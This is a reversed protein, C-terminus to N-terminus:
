RIVQVEGGDGVKIIGSPPPNSSENQRLPVIYDVAQKIDDSINYKKRDGEYYNGAMDTYGLEQDMM